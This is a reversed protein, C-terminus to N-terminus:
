SPFIGVVSPNSCICIVQPDDDKCISQSRTCVRGGNLSYSAFVLSDVVVDIVVNCLSCQRSGHRGVVLIKSRSLCLARGGVQREGICETTTLQVCATQRKQVAAVGLRCEQAYAAQVQTHKDIPLIQHIAGLRESLKLTLHARLCLLANRQVQVLALSLLKTVSGGICLSALIICQRGCALTHVRRAFVIVVEHILEAIEAVGPNAVFARFANLVKPVALRAHICDKGSTSPATPLAAGYGVRPAGFRM